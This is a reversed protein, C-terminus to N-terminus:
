RDSDAIASIENNSLGASEEHLFRLLEDIEGPGFRLDLEDMVISASARKADPLGQLIEVCDALTGRGSAGDQADGGHITAPESLPYTTM